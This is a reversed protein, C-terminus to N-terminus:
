DTCAHQYGKAIQSSNSSRLLFKYQPSRDNQSTDLVLSLQISVIVIKKQGLINMRKVYFFVYRARMQHDFSTLAHTERGGRPLPLHYPKTYMKSEGYGLQVIESPINNTYQTLTHFEIQSSLVLTSTHNILQFM